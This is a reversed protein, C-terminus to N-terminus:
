NVWCVLEPFAALALLVKTISFSIILLLVEM